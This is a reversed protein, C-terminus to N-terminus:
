AGPPPLGPDPPQTGMQQAQRPTLDQRGAYGADLEHWALIRPEGLRWCLLVWRGQWTTPFDMLGHEIGGQPFRVGRGLIEQQIEREMALVASRLATRHALAERHDPNSPDLLRDGWLVELLQLREHHRHAEDRHEGIRQLIEEMTPILANAQPVTFVRPAM